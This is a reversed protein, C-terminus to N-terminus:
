TLVNWVLVVAFFLSIRFQDVAFWLIDVLYACLVFCGEHVDSKETANTKSEQLVAM